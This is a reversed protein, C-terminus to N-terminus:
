AVETWMELEIKTIQNNSPKIHKFCFYTPATVIWYILNRLHEFFLCKTNFIKYYYFHQTEHKKLDIYKHIYKSKYKIWVTLCLLGLFKSIVLLSIQVHKLSFIWNSKAQYKCGKMKKEKLFYEFFMTKNKWLYVNVFGNDHSLFFWLVPFCQLM